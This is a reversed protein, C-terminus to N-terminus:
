KKKPKGEVKPVDAKTEQKKPKVEVKPLQVPSPLGLERSMIIAEVNCKALLVNLIRQAVERNLSKTKTWTELVKTALDKEFMEVLEGTLEINGINPEFKSVFTFQFKIVSKKADPMKSEIVDTISINSDVRMNESTGTKEANIKTFNFGITTM